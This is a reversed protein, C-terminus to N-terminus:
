NPVIFSEKKKLMAFLTKIIKNMLAVMAKRHAFGEERKKDYYDKFFPNCRIVGTAMLYLYKRLSANGRKTIRGRKYITGSEYIGPDTGCFAILNQYREFRDISGIEALFHAATIEGIGPISTIIQMEEDQTERVLDVLTETLQELSRELFILNSASNAVLPWYSAIGISEDALQKLKEVSLAITRGTPSKLALALQEDTAEEIAQACPFQSLLKLMTQTFVNYALIEPWAVTLDAKLQTKARAVDEAVQERRRAISLRQDDMAKSNVIKEKPVQQAYHAVLKADIKDTKTKRLTNAKSFQKVLVPNVITTSLGNQLLFHALTIHYRGTSEMFFSPSKFDSTANLLSEFGKRSMPFSGSIQKIEGSKLIHFSSSQQSVDIGIITNMM